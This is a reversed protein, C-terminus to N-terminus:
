RRAALRPAALAMALADSMDDGGKDIPLWEIEPHREVLKAYATEKGTKGDGFTVERVAKVMVLMTEIGLTDAAHHCRDEARVLARFTKANRQPGCEEIVVMDISKFTLLSVVADHLYLLKENQKKLKSPPKILGVGDIHYHASGDFRVVAWGTKSTSADLALVQM